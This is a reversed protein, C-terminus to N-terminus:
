LQHVIFFHSNFIQFEDTKNKNLFRIYSKPNYFFSIRIILNSTHFQIVFKSYHFDFSLNRFLQGNLLKFDFM